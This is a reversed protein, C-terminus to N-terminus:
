KCVVKHFQSGIRVIYVGASPVKIREVSSPKCINGVINGNLGYIEIPRGNTSYIEIENGNVSIGTGDIATVDVKTVILPVRVEDNVAIDGTATVVTGEPIIIEYSSNEDLEIEGFDAILATVGGEEDTYPIANVLTENDKALVVPMDPITHIAKDFHIEIRGSPYGSEGLSLNVFRPKEINGEYGGTFILETDKNVIDDRGGRVSGDPLVIKFEVGKEFYIYDLYSPGFNLYATGLNWDSSSTAEYKRVLKGNRYIEWEPNGVSEVEYGWSAMVISEKIVTNDETYHLDFRAKGLDEPVFFSAEVEDNSASEDDIRRLCDADMHFLYQKGKPLCLSDFHFVIRSNISTTWDTSYNIIEYGTPEAVTEGDCAIYATAADTESIHCGEFYVYIWNIPIDIPINETGEESRYPYGYVISHAALGTAMVAVHSMMCIAMTLLLAKVKM